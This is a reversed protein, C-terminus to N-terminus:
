KAPTLIPQRLHILIGNVYGGEKCTPPHSIVSNEQCKLSDGGGRAENMSVKNWLFSLLTVHHLFAPTTPERSQPGLKEVVNKYLPEQIQLDLKSGRRRRAMPAIEPRALRHEAGGLPVGGLGRPAAVFLEQASFVSEGGGGQTWAPGAEGRPPPPGAPVLPARVPPSM